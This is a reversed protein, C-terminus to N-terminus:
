QFGILTQMIESDIACLGAGLADAIHEFNGTYGDRAKESHYEEGLGPWRHVIADQIEKKSASRHNVVKIKIDDWNYARLPKDLLDATCTVVAIAMGMSAHARASKGGSSPLEAAILQPDWEKIATSLQDCIIRVRRVKDDTEFIRRRKAEPKTVICTTFVPQWDEDNHELVAM